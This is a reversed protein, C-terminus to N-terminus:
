KSNTVVVDEMIEGDELQKMEQLPKLYSWMMPKKSANWLGYHIINEKLVRESMPLEHMTM